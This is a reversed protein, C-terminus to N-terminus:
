FGFGLDRRHYGQALTERSWRAAEECKEMPDHRRRLFKVEGPCAKDILITKELSCDSHQEFQDQDNLLYIVIASPQHTESLLMIAFRPQIADKILGDLLWSARVYVESVRLDTAAFQSTVDSPVLNQLPGFRGGVGILTRSSRLLVVHKLPM